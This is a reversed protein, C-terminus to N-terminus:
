IGYGTLSHETGLLATIALSTAHNSFGATALEFPPWARVALSLSKTGELYTVENIVLSCEKHPFLFM